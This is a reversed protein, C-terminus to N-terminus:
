DVLRLEGLRLGARGVRWESRISAGLTSTRRATSGAAQTRGPVPMVECSALVRYPARGSSVNGTRAAM